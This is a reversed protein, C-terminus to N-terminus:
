QLYNKIDLALKKIENCLISLDARELSNLEDNQNRKKAVQNMNAALHNLTATFLLVEKPLAKIKRDIHRQLAITRLFESISVDATKAKVEILKREMLTCMVALQQNRKIDKKPRGGKNRKYEKVSEMDTVNLRREGNEIFGAWPIFLALYNRRLLFM